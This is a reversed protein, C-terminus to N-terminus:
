DFSRLALGLSIAASSSVASIFDDNYKKSNYTVKKFPNLQEIPAKVVGSLSKILTPLRCSGGSLYVHSIVRKSNSSTFFDLSRRIELAINESITEMAAIVKEPSKGSSSADVKLAEAEQLSVGMKNQIEATLWAGGISVDRTFLTTSADVINIKMISAGIDVLLSVAGEEVDYNTWYINSLAFADVDVISLKLGLGSLFDTRGILFDKKTAVLLVGMKGDEREPEIVEFDLNIEAMDFPIYQEAEWTIQDELEKPRVKDIQIQKIIISSGAVSTCVEDTKIGSEEIVSKVAGGVVTEDIIDGNVVSGQPVGVVGFASLNCTSGKKQLQAVKISSSGVDLGFINLKSKGGFFM